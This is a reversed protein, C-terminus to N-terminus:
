DEKIIKKAVDEFTLDERQLHYSKALQDLADSISDGYWEWNDVGGCNLAALRLEAALLRIYIKEDIKYKVKTRRKSLLKLRGFYEM